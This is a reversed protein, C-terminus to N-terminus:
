KCHEIFVGAEPGLSFLLDFFPANDVFGFRDAFPQFYPPIAKKNQVPTFSKELIEVNCEWQLSTHAWSLTKQTLELLYESELNELIQWLQFEYHEFYPTKGYTTQLANKLERVWKSQNAILINSVKHDISKKQLPISFFDVKNPGPIIFRNGDYVGKSKLIDSLAVNSGDGSYQIFWNLDPFVLIPAILQNVDFV